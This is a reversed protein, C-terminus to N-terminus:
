CNLCHRGASQPSQLDLVQVGQHVQVGVQGGGQLLAEVAVQLVVELACRAM